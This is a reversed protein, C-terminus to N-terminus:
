VATPPLLGALAIQDATSQDPADVSPNPELLAANLMTGELTPDVPMPSPLPVASPAKEKSELEDHINMIRNVVSTAIHLKPFRVSASM